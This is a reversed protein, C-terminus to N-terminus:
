PAPSAAASSGQQAPSSGPAPPPGAKSTELDVSTLYKILNDRKQPPLDQVDAHYGVFSVAHDARAIRGVTYTYNHKYCDSDKEEFVIENYEQKLIKLDTKNCIQRPRYTDILVSPSSNIYQPDRVVVAWMREKGLAHDVPAYSIRRTNGSKMQFTTRWGDMPSPLPHEANPSQRHCGSAAMALCILGGITNRLFRTRM